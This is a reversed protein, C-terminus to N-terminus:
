NNVIIKKVIIGSASKIKIFYIGQNVDKIKVTLLQNNTALINSQIKAGEINFISIDFESVQTSKLDIIFEGDTPNPYINISEFDKDLDVANTSGTICVTTDVTCNTLTDTIVLTYCGATDINSADKDNHSYNKPGSWDYIFHGSDSTSIYIAGLNENTINIVSDVIINIKDYQTVNFTDIIQCGLSDTITVTYAGACLNTITETSDSNSWSYQLPPVSNLINLISITGFCEGFCTPNTTFSDIQLQDLVGIEFTDIIQCGLSDTITVTYAGACLNTITETSDSNSWSYQLPPVSNLINLISITGFCEGFCTPNTTFSDVMLQGPSVIEFTDKYICGLSDTITLYYFGNCLSDIKNISDGTNWKYDYPEDFGFLSDISIVGLCEGYCNNNKIKTYITDLKCDCKKVFINTCITDGESCYNYGKGCITYDGPNTFHITVEKNSTTIETGNVVWIYDTANILNVMTFILTDDVCITDCLISDNNCSINDPGEIEPFGGGETVEIWYKCMTGACGDIFLYYVHGIILDTMDIPIDGPNICPCHLLVPNEMDCDDYVGYQIGAYEGNGSVCDFTHLIISVDTAGAVFAFWSPNHFFGQGECGPINTVQNQETMTYCNGELDDLDCNVEADQCSYDAIENCDSSFMGADWNNQVDGSEIGFYYTIGDFPNADSDKDDDMGIDRDTFSYGDPLYFKINYEGPKIEYSLDFSYHGAADTTDHYINPSTACVLEVAVGEIGPEGGDQIGNENFDNWVFDGVTSFLFYGADINDISQNASLTYVSTTGQGNSNDVDSDLDDNDGINPETFHEYGISSADFKLYYDGESINEFQYIGNEDTYVSDLLLNNTGYLFVHVDSLAKDYNSQIGQGVMDEWVYGSISQSVTPTFEKKLNFFLSIASIIIIMPIKM